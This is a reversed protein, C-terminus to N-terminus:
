SLQRLGVLPLCLELRWGLLLVVKRLDLMVLGDYILWLLPLIGLLHLWLSVVVILLLFAIV